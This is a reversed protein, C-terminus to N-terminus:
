SKIKGAIETISDKISKITENFSNNKLEENKLKREIPSIFVSNVSDMILKDKNEPSSLKNAYESITLAVASKFAYEEQFSREKRYQNIAFYTLIIAPITKLTNLALFQWKQIMDTVTGFDKFLFAIWAVTIVAMAPVSWKWFNVPSNLENKRQKFTEFLSAGVERGILEDLYTNRDEFYKKKSEVFTLYDQFHVQKNELETLNEQYQKKTSEYDKLLQNIETRREELFQKSEELKVQQQTFISNVKENTATSQNLLASISQSSTNSNALNREIQQLEATKQTVFDSLNKKEIKVRELESTVNKELSFIRNQIDRAKVENTPYIKRQGRDWFGNAVQYYILRNLIAETNPYYQINPLYSIFNQLDSELNGNGFENQYNYQIPLFIGIGNQLEETLQKVVRKVLSDFIEVSYQGVQSVNFNIIINSIDLSDIQNCFQIIVDKQQQTM